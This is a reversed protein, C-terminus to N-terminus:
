VSETRGVPLKSAEPRDGGVLAEKALAMQRLSADIKPVAHRSYLFAWGFAAVQTGWFLLPHIVAWQAIPLHYLLYTDLLAEGLFALGWIATILRRVFRAYPVQWGANLRALQEPTRVFVWRYVYYGVPKSFPLSLLCLLGFAGTLMSTVCCSCAPTMCWCPLYCLWWLWFWRSSALPISAARACGAMGPISCPPVAMLAFLSLTPLHPSALLYIVLPLVANILISLPLGGFAQRMTPKIDQSEQAMLPDKMTKMRGKNDRAGRGGLLDARLDLSAQRDAEGRSVRAM